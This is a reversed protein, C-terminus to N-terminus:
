EEFDLAAAAGGTLDRPKDPEVPVGGSEPDKGRPRRSRFQKRLWADYDARFERRSARPLKRPLPV